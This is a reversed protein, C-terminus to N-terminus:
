KGAGRARLIGRPLLPRCADTQTKVVDSNAPGTLRAPLTFYGDPDPDPWDSLGHRRMCGAFKRYAAMDSASAPKGGSGVRPIKDRISRCADEASKPPPSAGPALGWGGDGRQVMDPFNPAGHDRVCQSLRRYLTAVQASDQSGASDEKAGCGAPGSALVVLALAQVVGKSANM